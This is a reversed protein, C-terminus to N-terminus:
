KKAPASMESHVTVEISEAIKAGVATPVTINHDVLLVNFKCDVTIKGGKIVLTANLTRPKKVSHITLDGTMTVQYTGDKTYDVTENIKGNFTAMRNPYTVKGNKDKEGEKNTEMYNENFHEEMLPNPFHFGRVDVSTIVQNTKTNLLMTAVTDTASIDELATHSFFTIKNTNGRYIAQASVATGTLIILALITLTKKMLSKRKMTQEKAIKRGNQRILLFCASIGMM